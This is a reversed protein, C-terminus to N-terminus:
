NNSMHLQSASNTKPDSEDIKLLINNIINYNTAQTHSSKSNAYM